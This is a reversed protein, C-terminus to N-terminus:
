GTRRVVLRAFSTLRQSQLYETFAYRAREDARAVLARVARPWQASPSDDIARKVLDVDFMGPTSLELMEWDNPAFLRLLGEITPLNVKDPPLVTPSREWLAQVEFGSAVAVTAFVVGGPKLTRHIAGALARLDPTRDLADFAVVIDAPGLGPLDAVRTPEASVRSDRVADLDATVAASVVDLSPDESVLEALLMGGNTSVDVIRTAEPAYEAKGDLIWQVRPLVIKDRRSAASAALLRERWFRAPESNRYWEALAPEGPRHRAYLTGCSDCEVYAVGSRAFAEAAGDGDCCPCRSDIWGAGSAAEAAIASAVLGRWTAVEAAPKIELEEIEQVSVITKM